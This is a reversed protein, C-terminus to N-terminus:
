AGGKKTRKRPTTKPKAPKAPKAPYIPCQPCFMFLPHAIWGHNEAVLLLEDWSSATFDSLEFCWDCEAVFHERKHVGM